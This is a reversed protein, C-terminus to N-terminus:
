NIIKRIFLVKIVKRKTDINIILRYDNLKLRYNTNSLNYLQFIFPNERIISLTDFIDFKNNHELKEM